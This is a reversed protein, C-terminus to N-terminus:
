TENYRSLSHDLFKKFPITRSMAEVLTNLRNQFFRKCYKKLAISEHQKLDLLADIALFWVREEKTEEVEKGHNILIGLIRRFIADFFYCESLQTSQLCYSTPINSQKAFYLEVKLRKLSIKTRIIQLGQTVAEYYKGLKKNLM